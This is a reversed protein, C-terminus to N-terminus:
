AVVGRAGRAQWFWEDLPALLQSERQLLDALQQLEVSSDCVLGGRATVGARALEKANRFHRFSFGAM